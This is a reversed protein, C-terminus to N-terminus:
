PSEVVKPATAIAVRAAGAARAQEVVRSVVGHSLGRDARIVVVADEDSELGRLIDALAAQFRDTGVRQEHIAVAGYADVTVLVKESERVDRTRAGPLEVDMDAVTMLPATVLLIIVLVLAVDIIPTVNIRYMAPSSQVLPAKM